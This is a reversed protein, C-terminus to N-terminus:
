YLGKKWSRLAARAEGRRPQLPAEFRKRSRKSGGRGRAHSGEAAGEMAAHWSREFPDPRASSRWAPALHKSCSVVFIKLTRM